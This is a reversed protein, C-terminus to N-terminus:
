GGPLTDPEVPLDLRASWEEFSADYLKSTYGLYRSVFYLASGAMGTGCYAVVSDGATVGAAVLIQKLSDADAFTSTGELLLSSYPLNATGAIHGPRAYSGAREGSYSTPGRADFIALAPNTLHEGLWDLFAVINPQVNPTISGPVIEPPETALPRDAEVWAALGGNLLSTRDGLGIYDLTFFTRTAMSLANDGHYLVIHSENSVGLGEFVSDLHAVPPLENHLGRASTMLITERDLRRADRIHGEDYEPREGIHILVLGSDGLHDALWDASVLQPVVEALIQEEESPACATSCLGVLLGYVALLSLNQMASRMKWKEWM